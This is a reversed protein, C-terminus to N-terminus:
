RNEFLLPAFEPRLGLRTVLPALGQTLQRIEKLSMQQLAALLLEAPPSPARKLLRRGERTLSLVARRGDLPSQERQVLGAAVLRTLLASVTNQRAHLREALENVSPHDDAALQRLVFLQANTIGTSAEVERASFDLSAVLARIQRLAATRDSMEMLTSIFVRVAGSLPSRDETMGSRLRGRM